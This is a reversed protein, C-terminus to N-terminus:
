FIFMGKDLDRATTHALILTSGDDADIYLSGHHGEVHHKVLDRFSGIGVAKSLDVDDHSFLGTNFDSIKDTGYRKGFVFTDADGGGAMQDNGKGGDLKDSGALGKLKDNGGLGRIRDQGITGVLTEGYSHGNIVTVLDGIDIIFDTEVFLGGEDTARITVTYHQKTEYDLTAGNAVELATGVIVFNGSPDDISYTLSDGTDPDTATLNGVLTGGASNEWVSHNDLVLGTPAHNGSLVDIAFVDTVSADGDSATVKVSIPGVDGSAPTGSFTRSAADFHLWSPLSGGDELTASYTLTDGVDVDGFVNAAFAFNFDDGLVVAQDSIPHDVTPGDNTNATNITFVDTATLKGDSATVKVNISGVNDNVPTGSFTRTAADFSLWSPLSSGDELTASYSLADGDADSFVNAAFTFGFDQDETANQDAIPNAVTPAHNPEKIVLDFTDSVTAVGDSAIVKVSITGVDGSAPTGSFTSIRTCAGM